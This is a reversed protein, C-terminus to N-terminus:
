KAEEEFSFNASIGKKIAKFILTVNKSNLGEMIFFVILKIILYELFCIFEIFNLLHSHILLYFGNRFFFYYRKKSYSVFKHKLIKKHADGMSHKVIIRTDCIIKYGIKRARWYWENDVFDIFLRENMLGIDKIASIPIFSGSSIAHELFFTTNKQPIIAKYKKIMIRSYENKNENYFLPVISAIKYKLKYNNYISLVDKIYSASYITDQDSLLIYEAGLIKAREIGINQAAAIGLNKELQIIVIKENNILNLEEQSNKIIIIKAVQPLLSMITEKLIEIKPNYTVLLVIIM